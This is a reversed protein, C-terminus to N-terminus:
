RRPVEEFGSLLGSLSRPLFPVGATKSPSRIAQLLDPRGSGRDARSSLATGPPAGPGSEQGDVRFAGSASEGHRARGPERVLGDPNPAVTKTVGTQWLPSTFHADALVLNAIASEPHHVLPKQKRVPLRRPEPLPLDGRLLLRHRQHGLCSSFREFSPVEVTGLCRLKEDLVCPLGVLGDALPVIVRPLALLAPRFVEVPVEPLLESGTQRHLVDVLVARFPESLRRAPLLRRRRGREVTFYLQEFTHEVVRDRAARQRGIGDRRHFEQALWVHAPRYQVVRGELLQEGCGLSPELRDDQDRVVGSHPQALDETEAPRLNLSPRM